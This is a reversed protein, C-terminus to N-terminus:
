GVERILLLRSQIYARAEAEEECSLDQRERLQQTLRQILSQDDLLLFAAPSNEVLRWLQHLLNSTM